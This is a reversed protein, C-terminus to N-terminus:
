VSLVRPHHFSSQTSSSSCYHLHTVSVSSSCRSSGSSSNIHKISNFNGATNDAANNLKQRKMVGSVHQDFTDRNSYLEDAKQRALLTKSGILILTCFVGAHGVKAAISGSESDHM